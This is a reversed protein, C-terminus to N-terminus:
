TRINAGLGDLNITFLGQDINNLIDNVQQMKEDILEQLHDTYQKITARMSEFHGALDGIEDNSEQQVVINYNGDSISKTSAVLSGIPSTIRMSQQRVVAYGIGLSFLGTSLIALILMRLTMHGGAQAERILQEMSRTSIGYRIHGLIDDDLVVPAAFEMVITNGRRYERYALRDLSGAWLSISDDLPENGQAAGTLTDVSANVWPIRQRDMYIGYVVDDDDAVTSSVLDRIATFANDEAMGRMAMSNNNALTKGKALLSNRISKKTKEINKNIAIVNVFSITSLLVVFTAVILLMTNRVLKTHISVFRKM